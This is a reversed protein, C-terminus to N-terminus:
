SKLPGSNENYATLLEDKMMRSMSVNKNFLNTLEEPDNLLDYLEFLEMNKYGKYYTMKYGQKRMAVSAISLRGYSSNFKADVTFTSRLNDELTGFGPLLQGQCIAPIECEAIKLVTPLIDVSNTPSHVDNRTKQSPASVLLPVHVGPDFMLPSIHGVVGREFMEGHDSTLIFCTRDLEGSADLADLFRGFEWDVNAVYADYKQRQSQMSKESRRNGLIHNPKRTPKWGDQNFMDIFEQRPTYPAHPSWLHFYAFFPQQLQKIKSLLGSFVDGLQYYIKYDENHPIGLPYDNVSIANIRSGFLMRDILGFVLSKPSENVRAFFDDYAYYGAPEDNKFWPGVMQNLFGFSGPPLRMDINSRFESLLLEAWVNQGFGARDYKKGLLSFINNEEFAPAVQGEENIARHTWPYLGTLLSATGPVTFSGASYHSHYVTSRQALREFNPTTRRGYGYLSLNDASMADFVLVIINPSNAGLPGPAILQSFALAVPASAAM